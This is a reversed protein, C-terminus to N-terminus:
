FCYERDALRKAEWEVRDADLHVDVTTIVQQVVSNENATSEDLNLIRAMKEMNWRLKPKDADSSDADGHCEAIVVESVSENPM